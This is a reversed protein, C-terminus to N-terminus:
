ILRPIDMAKEKLEAEKKIESMLHQAESVDLLHSIEQEFHYVLMPKASGKNV